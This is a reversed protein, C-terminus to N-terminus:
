RHVVGEATGLGKAGEGRIGVTNTSMGFSGPASNSLGNLTPANAHEFDLAYLYAELKLLAFGDWNAKFLHSSMPYDSRDALPNDEGFIRNVNWVYSYDLKLRRDGTDADPFFSTTVRAADFSQWNQRWLINGVYRHLPAQRHEIEQRGVRLVTFPLGEYRINAQQVETGTPDVVTAFRADSSLGNRAVTLSGDNYDGLLSRVDEFQLYAGFGHFLATNYGLATRLTLADADELRVAPVPTTRAFADDEVHEYRLRAYFDVKGKTIADMLSNDAMAMAPMMAPLFAVRWAARYLSRRRM